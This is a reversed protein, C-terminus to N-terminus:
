VYIIPRLFRKLSEKIPIGCVVNWSLKDIDLQSGKSTIGQDFVILGGTIIFNM